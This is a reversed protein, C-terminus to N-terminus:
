VDAEFWNRVQRQMSRTFHRLQEIFFTVVPSSTRGKLTVVALPWPKWPLEVPLSILKWRKAHVQMVSRPFTTIFHGSGVMNARLQMSITMLSIKPAGFGREQFADSLVRNPWSGPTGLIWLEDILESLDIKRRSAWRSRISASVVVPDDFLVDVDLDDALRDNAYPMGFHGLVLDIERNRLGPLALTRNDVQDINVVVRPHQKCFTELLPAVIMLIFEPCGIRLDGATPDILFEIDRVSQRLEDFVALSRKLLASGFTTLEVGRPGRDFLRVAFMQELNTIIESVTPQKIRLQAAAKAM